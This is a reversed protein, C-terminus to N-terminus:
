CEKLFIVMELLRPNTPNVGIWMLVVQWVQLMLFMLLSTTRYDMQNQSKDELRGNGYEYTIGQKECIHGLLGGIWGNWGYILFNFASRQIYDNSTELMHNHHIGNELVPPKTDVVDHPETYREVGTTKLMTPKKIGRLKPHSIYWDM